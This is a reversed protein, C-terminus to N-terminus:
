TTPVSVGLMSAQNTAFIGEEPSYSLDRTASSAISGFTEALGRITSEEPLDVPREDAEAGAFRGLLEEFSKMMAVSTTRADNSRADSEPPQIFWADAQNQQFFLGILIAFKILFNRTSVM